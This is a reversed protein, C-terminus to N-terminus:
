TWLKIIEIWIEVRSKTVLTKDFNTWKFCNKVICSVNGAVAVFMRVFLRVFSPVVSLLVINIVFLRVLHFLGIAFNWVLTKDHRKNNDRKGCVCNLDCNKIELASAHFIFNIKVACLIFAFKIQQVCRGLHSSSHGALWCPHKRIEERKRNVSSNTKDENRRKEFKFKKGINLWSIQHRNVKSVVDYKCDNSM